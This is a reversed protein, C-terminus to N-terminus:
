VSRKTLQVWGYWGILAADVIGDHPKRARPTLTFDVNPWLKAAVFSSTEKTNTAIMPSMKHVYESWVSPPIYYMKMKVDHLTGLLYGYERGYNFMATASAQGMVQAKEIFVTEVKNELLYARVNLGNLLRFNLIDADKLICVAGHRGPDIGAYIM